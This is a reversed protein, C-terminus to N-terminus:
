AIRWFPIADNSFQNIPHQYLASLNKATLIKACTGQMYNGDGFLLLIHTCFQQALNMDHLSMLVIKNENVALHHFHNLVNAQHCIDLHNAPEDLLYIETTQALLSAIALRRKEGGSLRTVLRHKYNLLELKNLADTVIEKDHDNEQKFLNLHPYRAALCFEWVTQPFAFHIEQFLIALQQSIKKASLHRINKTALFIEGSTPKHLGALTHLLTTKGSGNPGLLGWIQNEHLELNLDHCISKNAITINLNHISLKM